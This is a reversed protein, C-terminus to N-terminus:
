SQRRTQQIDEGYRELKNNKSQQVLINHYCSRWRRFLINHHEREQCAIERAEFLDSSIKKTWGPATEWFPQLPSTWPRQLTLIVRGSQAPMISTPLVPWVLDKSDSQAFGCSEQSTCQLRSAHMGTPRDKSLWRKSVYSGGHNCSCSRACPIWEAIMSLMNGSSARTATLSGEHRIISQQCSKPCDPRISQVLSQWFMCFACVPTSWCCTQIVCHLTLVCELTARVSSGTVWPPRPFTIQWGRMSRACIHGGQTCLCM